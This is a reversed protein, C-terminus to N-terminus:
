LPELPHWASGWRLFCHNLYLQSEPCLGARSHGLQPAQPLKKVERHRLKWMWSIPIDSTTVLIGHVM